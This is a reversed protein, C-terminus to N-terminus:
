RGPPAGPTLPQLTFVHCVPHSRGPRARLARRDCLHLSSAPWGAPIDKPDGQREPLASSFARKRPMWCFDGEQWRSALRRVHGQSDEPFTFEAPRVLVPNQGGFGLPGRPAPM